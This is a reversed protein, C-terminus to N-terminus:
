NRFFDIYQFTAGSKLLKKGGARFEVTTIRDKREVRFLHRDHGQLALSYKKGDVQLELPGEAKDIMGTIRLVVPKQELDAAVATVRFRAIDKVELHYTQAQPDYAEKRGPAPGSSKQFEFTVPGTDQARAMAAILFGFLVLWARCSM